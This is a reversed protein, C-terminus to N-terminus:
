RSGGIKKKGPLKAHMVEVACTAGDVLKAQTNSAQEIKCHFDEARISARACRDFDVAFIAGDPLATTGALSVILETDTDNPAIFFGAPVRTIRKQVEPRNEFGPIRVAKEPYDLVVKVGALPEGAPAKLDVVVTMTGGPNCVASSDAARAANGSLVLVVAALLTRASSHMVTRAATM